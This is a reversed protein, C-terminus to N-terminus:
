CAGIPGATFRNRLELYMQGYPTSWLALDAASLGVPMVYTSSVGDVTAMQLAGVQGGVFSGDSGLATAMRHAALAGIARAHLDGFVSSSTDAEADELALDVVADPVDVFEPYRTRFDPTPLVTSPM